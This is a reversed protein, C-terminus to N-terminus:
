ESEPESPQAPSSEPDEGTGTSDTPGDPFGLLIARELRRTAAPEGAEFGLHKRASQGIARLQKAYRRCHRCILLHLRIVSRRRWGAGSLEDTAVLRAVEKCKLMAAVRQSGEEGLM